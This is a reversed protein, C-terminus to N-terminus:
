ADFLNINSKMSYFTMRVKKNVIETRKRLPLGIETWVELLDEVFEDIM